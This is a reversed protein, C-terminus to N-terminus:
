YGGPRTPPRPTEPVSLDLGIERLLKAFNLMSQAEIETAPHRKKQGFRDDIVAGEVSITRRADAARDWAQGALILLREHHNELVYRCKVTKIWKKTSDTLSDFAEKM